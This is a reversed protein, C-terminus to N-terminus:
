QGADKLSDLFNAVADAWAEPQQDVIDVGGGELAVFAFDPRLEHARVAHPYIMDGTNSLILTPQKIEPLVEAQRYAYAANHGYWFAGKGILAQVVYDSIRDDPVSGAAFRSRINFLEAMHAAEPRAGYGLEWQHLGNVFGDWEAEDVLLPGNIVLASIRDPYHRAAETAALAGTHHGLLFATDIGLMDLVAPVVKAYDTVTPVFDTPDSMGFGPMDIGIARFGRRALPEYVNDFQGSTMPAQHLLILPKGAGLQQYHIQGFPGDAYGRKPGPIVPEPKPDYIAM